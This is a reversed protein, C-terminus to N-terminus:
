TRGFLAWCLFGAVISMTLGWALLRNFLVRRDADLSAALCLAGITSLPSVDVLNGGIVVSSALGFGSVSPNAQVLNKVMPLFAPLVVGTTSSYVSIVGTAFATVGTLTGASSAASIVGAFRETGGTRELLATLVSVGCVMVIVSWPVKQFADREDALRLLAIVMAGAFAAMGIHAKGFVVTGVVVLVVALTMAHTRTLPGGDQPIAPLTALLEEGPKVGAHSPRFLKWGGLVLYGIIAVAINAIANYWYIQWEHGGLGINNL